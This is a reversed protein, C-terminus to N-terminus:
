PKLKASKDAQQRVSYGREAWWQLTASISAPTDASAADRVLLARLAVDGAGPKAARQAAFYARAVDDERSCGEIHWGFRPRGRQRLEVLVHGSPVELPRKCYACVPLARKAM